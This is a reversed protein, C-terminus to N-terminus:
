RASGLVANRLQIGKKKIRDLLRKAWRFETSLLGLGVVIAAWGPGPTVLMIIGALLLIIGAVIKAVKM